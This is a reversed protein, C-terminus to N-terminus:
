EAPNGPEPMDAGVARWLRRLIAERTREAHPEETLTLTEHSWDPPLQGRSAINIQNINGPIVTMGEVGSIVVSLRSQRVAPQLRAQALLVLDIVWGIWEAPVSGSYGQPLDHPGLVWRARVTGDTSM